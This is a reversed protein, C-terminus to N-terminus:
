PLVASDMAAVFERVCSAGFLRNANPLSGLIRNALEAPSDDRHAVAKM